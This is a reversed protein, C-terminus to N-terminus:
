ETIQAEEGQIPSAVKSVSKARAKRKKKPQRQRQILANLDQDSISQIQEVTYGSTQKPQQQETLWQRVQQGTEDAFAYDQVQRPQGKTNQIEFKTLLKLAPIRGSKVERQFLTYLRRQTESDKEEIQKSFTLM